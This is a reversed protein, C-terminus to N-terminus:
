FLGSLFIINNGILDTWSDLRELIYVYDLILYLLILQKAIEPVRNLIIRLMFFTFLIPSLLLAVFIVSAFYYAGGNTALFFIREVSLITFFNIGLITLLNKSM